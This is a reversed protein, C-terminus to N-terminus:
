KVKLAFWLRPNDLAPLAPFHPNSLTIINRAHLTSKEIFEQNFAYFLRDFSGDAIAITLGKEIQNALQTNDKKVFYYMATPYCLLLQKEVALGHHPRHALEQWVEIISRPFYEFRGKQLMDFLTEYSTSTEVKIANNKLIQTDPWDLGQGALLKSLQKLNSIHEFLGQNEQKIILVRWGILGKYLPIRIPLFEAEREINTMTWVVDINGEGQLLKLARSQTTATDSSVLTYPLSTKSFALELLQLPYEVRIDDASESNPYYIPTLNASAYTNLSYFIYLCFTHISLQYYHRNTRNRYLM